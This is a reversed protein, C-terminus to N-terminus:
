SLRFLNILRGFPRRCPGLLDELPGLLGSSCNWFLIGLRFESFKLLSSWTLSFCHNKQLLAESQDLLCYFSSLSAGIIKSSLLLSKETSYKYIVRCRYLSKFLELRNYDTWVSDRQFTVLGWKGDIINNALTTINTKGSLRSFWPSPDKNECHHCTMKKHCKECELSSM